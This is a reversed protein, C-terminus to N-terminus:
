KEQGVFAVIRYALQAQTVQRQAAEDMSAHAHVM